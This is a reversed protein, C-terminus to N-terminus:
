KKSKDALRLEDALDSVATAYFNSVNYRKIVYFNHAAYRIEDDGREFNPLVIEKGKDATTFVPQNAKWGHRKLYNGISMIADEPNNYLDVMHTRDGNADVAYALISAPMFQPYGVAGAFSGYTKNIDIRQSYGLSLLAALQGRFMNIRSTREPSPHHFSLTYLVDLTKYNGKFSGYNTEIGLIAGIIYKPVGYTREALALTQSYKQMFATGAFIRRSHVNNDRYWIWSTQARKKGAIKSDLDSVKQNFKASELVEVIYSEPIKYKTATDKIFSDPVGDLAFASAILTYSLTITSLLKKLM